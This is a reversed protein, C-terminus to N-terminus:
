RGVRQRLTWKAGEVMAQPTLSYEGDGIATILRFHWYQRDPLPAFPFIRWWRRRRLRWGALLLILLSWPHKLVYRGLGPVWDTM